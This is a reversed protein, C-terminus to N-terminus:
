SARWDGPGHHRLKQGCYRCPAYETAHEAYRQSRDPKHRGIACLVAHKLHKFQQLIIDEWCSGQLSDGSAQAELSSSAVM